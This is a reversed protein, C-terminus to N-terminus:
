ELALEISRFIVRFVLNVFSSSLYRIALFKNVLLFVMSRILNLLIFGM